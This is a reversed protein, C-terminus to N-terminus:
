QLIQQVKTLLLDGSKQANSSNRVRETYCKIAEVQGHLEAIKSWDKFQAPPYVSLIPIGQLNGSLRSTQGESGRIGASDNDYAFIVMSPQLDVIRRVHVETLKSGGVGCGLITLADWIGESLSLPMNKARHSYQYEGFLVDRHAICGEIKRPFRYKRVEHDYWQYYEMVGARSWYPLLLQDNDFDWSLGYPKVMESLLGRETVWREGIRTLPSGEYLNRFTGPPPPYPAPPAKEAKPAEVMPEDFPTGFDFVSTRHHEMRQHIIVGVKDLMTEAKAVEEDFHLGLFSMIERQPVGTRISLAWASRGGYPKGSKSTYWCQWKLMRNRVTVWLRRANDTYSSSSGHRKKDREKFPSPMTLDDGVRVVDIGRALLWGHLKELSEEDSQDLIM